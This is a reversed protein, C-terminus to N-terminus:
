EACCSIYSESFFASHTVRLKVFLSFRFRMCRFVGIAEDTLTSLMINTSYIFLLVNNWLVFFFFYTMFVFIVFIYTYLGRTLEACAAQRWSREHLQM